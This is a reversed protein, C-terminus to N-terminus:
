WFCFIADDQVSNNDFILTSVLCVQLTNRIEKQTTFSNSPSMNSFTNFEKIDSWRTFSLCSSVGKWTQVVKVEVCQLQFTFVELAVPLFTDDAARLIGWWAILTNSSIPSSSWMIRVPKRCQMFHAIEHFKRSRPTGRCEAFRLDSRPADPFTAHWQTDHELCTGQPTDPCILAQTRQTHRTLPFWPMSVEHCTKLLDALSSWKHLENRPVLVSIQPRILTQKM